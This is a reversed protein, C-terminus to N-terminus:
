VKESNIEKLKDLLRKPEVSDVECKTIYNITFQLIMRAKREKEKEEMGDFMSLYYEKCGDDVFCKPYRNETDSYWKNLNVKEVKNIEAYKRIDAITPPFQSTKAHNVLSDHALKYDIDSLCENWLEVTETSFHYKPYLSQVSKILKSLETLTM